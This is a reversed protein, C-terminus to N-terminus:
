AATEGLSQIIKGLKDDQNQIVKQNAEYNRMALILNAMEKVTSVNSSELFGQRVRTGTVEYPGPGGQRPQFLGGSLKKLESTDNFDVVRLKGINLAGQRVSGDPLISIQSKDLPDAVIPGGDGLVLFGEKTVLQGQADIKFEGDRTYAEKGDMMEVAFFGKGDLALDTNIDTRRLAGQTFNTGAAPVPFSYDVPGEGSVDRMSAPIDGVQMSGFIVEQKKFGPVAQAALNESTAELWQQNVNLASAASYLGVNM